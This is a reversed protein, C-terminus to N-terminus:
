HDLVRRLPQTIEREEREYDSMRKCSLEMLQQTFSTYPIQKHKSRLKQKYERHIQTTVTCVRKYFRWKTEVDNIHSAHSAFLTDFMVAEPIWDTHDMQQYYASSAFTFITISLVVVTLLKKFM